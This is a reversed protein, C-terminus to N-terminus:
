PMGKILLGAPQNRSAEMARHALVEFKPDGTLRSLAAFEMLMTGACATCTTNDNNQYSMGHRLNVQFHSSCCSPAVLLAALILGFLQAFLQLHMGLIIIILAHGLWTVYLNMQFHLCTLLADILQLHMGPIIILVHGLWTVHRLMDCLVGYLTAM